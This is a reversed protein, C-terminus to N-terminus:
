IRGRHTGVVCSLITLVCVTNRRYNNDLGFSFSGTGYFGSGGFNRLPTHQGFEPAHQVHSPWM